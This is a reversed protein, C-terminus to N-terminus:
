HHHAWSLLCFSAPPVSIKFSILARAGRPRFGWGREVSDTHWGSCLLACFGLRLWVFFDKIFDFSFFKFWVLSVFFTLLFMALFNREVWWSRFSRSSGPSNVYAQSKSRKRMEMTSTDFSSGAGVSSTRWKRGIGSSTARTSAPASTASTLLIERSRVIRRLQMTSHVSFVSHWGNYILSMCSVLLFQQWAINRMGTVRNQNRM